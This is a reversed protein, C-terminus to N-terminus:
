FEKIKLNKEKRIEDPIESLAKEAKEKTPYLNSESKYQAFKLYNKVGAYWEKENTIVFGDKNENLDSNKILTGEKIFKRLDFNDM